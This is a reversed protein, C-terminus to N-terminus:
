KMYEEPLIFWGSIWPVIILRMGLLMQENNYYIKADPIRLNLYGYQYDQGLLEYFCDTGMAIVLEKKNLPFLYENDGIFKIINKIINDSDEPYFTYTKFRFEEKLVNCKLKRLVYLCLRQLWHYKRDSRFTYQDKIDYSYIERKNVINRPQNLVFNTTYSRM